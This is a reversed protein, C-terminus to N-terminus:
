WLLQLGLAGYTSLSADKSVLVRSERIAQWVLMRDFPDKHAQRPLQYFSAMETASPAIIDFRMATAVGPLDDPQCGELTIKGLGYKLAIEWFSITSVGIENEAARLVKKAKTGLKEPAFAAWLFAHTDLLCNM